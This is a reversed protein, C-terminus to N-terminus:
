NSVTSVQARKVMDDSALWSHTAKKTAQKVSPNSDQKTGKKKLPRYSADDDEDDIHQYRSVKTKKFQALRQPPRVMSKLDQIPGSETYQLISRDTLDM